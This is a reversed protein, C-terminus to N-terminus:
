LVEFGVFPTAATGASSVMEVSLLDGAAVAPFNAVDSASKNAASITCTLTTAGWTAGNDSSKRVTFVVTDAGGPATGLSARLNRLIGTKTVIGIAVETASVAGGATTMYRTAAGITGTSNAKCVSGGQEYRLADGAASGAGLGTVKFGGAALNAGLTGGGTLAAAGTVSLTSSLTAAGSVALTTVSLAGASPAISAGASLYVSADPNLVAASGSPRTQMVHYLANSQNDVWDLQAVNRGNELNITAGDVLFWKTSDANQKILQWTGPEGGTTRAVSLRIVGTTNTLTGTPSVGDAPLSLLVNATVDAM